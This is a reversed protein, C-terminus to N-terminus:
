QLRWRVRELRSQDVAHMSLEIGAELGTCMQLNGCTTKAQDGAARMVFKALDQSFTEGISVPRVGPSKDLAVVGCAM